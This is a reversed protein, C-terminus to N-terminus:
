GAMDGAPQQEQHGPATYNGPMIMGNGPLIYDHQGQAAQIALLHAAASEDGGVANNEVGNGGTTAVMAAAVDLPRTLEEVPTPPVRPTIKLDDIVYHFMGAYSRLLLTMVHSSPVYPAPALGGGFPMGAIAASTSAAAMETPGVPPNGLHLTAGMNSGPAANAAATAHMLTASAFQMAEQMSPMDEPALGPLGEGNEFSGRDLDRTRKRRRENHRMLRARCSRKNEEFDELPHFRGCQQCFRVRQGDKEIWEEKLHRECIKYRVHYDKLGALPVRCDEVQCVVAQSTKSRSSPGARGLTADPGGHHPDSPDMAATSLMMHIEPLSATPQPESPDCHAAPSTGGAFENM